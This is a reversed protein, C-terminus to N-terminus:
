DVKVARSFESTGVVGFFDNRILTASLWKGRWDGKAAITVGGSTANFDQSGLSYQGDGYGSPDPADSAFLEIRPNFGNSPENASLVVITKDQAPDYHASVIVPAPIDRDPTPGDLGVDIGLQWNAFISNQFLEVRTAKRDIAVGFDHNFASYNGLINLGSVLPGVYIGSAGNALPQHHIDIGITNWLLTKSLSRGIWIGSRRNGSVLSSTVVGGVLLESIVVGRGNPAATIGTPDVGLYSNVVSAGYTLRQDNCPGFDSDAEGKMTVAANRFNGIAVSGVEGGCPSNFVIGDESDNGGGDIFIEPGNPNTDGTLQTQTAGDIFVNNGTIAPLARRPKITFYGSSPPAGLRFAIKCPYSDNCLLNAQDITDALSEATDTVYLTRVVKATGAFHNSSPENGKVDAAIDATFQVVKGNVSDDAVATVVFDPTGFSPFRKPPVTGIPCTVVGASQACQDPVAVVNLGAPIGITLVVGTEADTASFNGYFAGVDFPTGPTIEDPFRLFTSLDASTQALAAYAVLM